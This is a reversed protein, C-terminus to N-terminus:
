DYQKVKGFAFAYVRTCVYGYLVIIYFCSLCLWPFPDNFFHLSM